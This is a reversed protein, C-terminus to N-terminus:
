VTMSNEGYSKPEGHRILNRNRGRGYLRGPRQLTSSPNLPLINVPNRHRIWQGLRHSTTPDLLQSFRVFFNPDFGGAKQRAGGPERPRGSKCFGPNGTKLAWGKALGVGKLLCIVAFVEEPCTTTTTECWCSGTESVCNQLFM